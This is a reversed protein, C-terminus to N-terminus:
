WVISEYGKECVIYLFSVGDRSRLNINIDKNNFLIEVISVYGFEIVIYLFSLGYKDYLNIKM